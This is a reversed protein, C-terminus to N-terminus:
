AIWASASESPVPESLKASAEVLEHAAGAPVLEGVNQKVRM